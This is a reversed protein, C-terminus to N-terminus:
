AEEGEEDCEGAVWFGGEEGGGGDGILSKNLAAM